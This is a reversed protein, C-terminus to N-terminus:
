LIQFGCLKNSCCVFYEVVGGVWCIKKGGLNQTTVHGAAVLTKRGVVLPPLSSLGQSRPQSYPVLCDREWLGRDKQNAVPIAVEPWTWSWFDAIWPSGTVRRMSLTMDSLDSQNQDWDITNVCGNLVPIDNPRALPGSKGACSLLSGQLRPQSGLIFCNYMRRM